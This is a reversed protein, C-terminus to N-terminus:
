FGNWSAQPSGGNQCVSERPDQPPPPDKQLILDAAKEAIVMVTANPNASIQTPFSSADVVRLGDVGRVRLEDDLVAGPDDDSGMPCSAVPHHGTTALERVAELLETTSKCGRGPSMENGVIGQLAPQSMVKRMHQCGAALEDLDTQDTFYGPDILPAALPSPSALRVTGSSRPRLLNIDIQLGPNAMKGRAIVSRGLSMLNQISWGSGGAEERVVMPTMYVQIDPLAADHLSHFLVSSWFPGSGPGKGTLLFQLGMWIARDIRQLRALSLREDRLDFQLPLNPHDYFRSGVGALDVRPSIDREQLHQAPGIGSLMLMQPSHFAGLCLLVERSARVKGSDLLLGVARRGDFEIAHVRRHTMITLNAPPNRLYARAASQRRGRHVKTDVRGCGTQRHGNFDDTWRDGAQQCAQTFMEDVPGFNAAPTLKLPGDVGHFPDNVRHEASASRKFYPLLDAYSWGKLGLAAWNDYDQPNGRLYLMGNMLSTGGLGLGRPYYIRRGHLAAQPESQLRWDYAPNGFIFGNGAPMDVFLSRGSGGAEVLLVKLSPDACLRAALACGASGAGAIVYDYEAPPSTM